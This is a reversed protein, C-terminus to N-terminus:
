KKPNAIAIKFGDPDSVRFGIPGWPLPGAEADLQLGAHKARDALEAIDQRTEIYISMGLGKARDRGKAFDDQSLGLLVNSGATLMVGQLTGNEEFRETVTFGLGETYFRLSRKLDNATLAVTLTGGQLTKDAM